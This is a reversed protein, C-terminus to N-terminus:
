SSADDRAPNKARKRMALVIGLTGLSGLLLSAAGGVLIVVADVYDGDRFRAIAVFPLVIGVSLFGLSVLLAHREGVDSLLSSDTTQQNRHQSILTRASGYTLIGGLALVYFGWARDRVILWAGYLMNSVGLAAGAVTMWRNTILSRVIRIVMARKSAAKQGHQSVATATGAVMAVM